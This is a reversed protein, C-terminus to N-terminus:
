VSMISLVEPNSLVKKLRLIKAIKLKLENVEKASLEKDKVEEFFLKYRLLKQNM